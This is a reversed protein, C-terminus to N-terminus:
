ARGAGRATTVHLAGNICLILVSLVAIAAFVGATDYHASADVVLYGMGHQGSLFEGVIAGVLAQPLATRLGTVLHPMIGPVVITRVLQWRSAGM